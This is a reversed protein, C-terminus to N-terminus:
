GRAYGFKHDEERELLFKEMSKFTSVAGGLYSDKTIRLDLEKSVNLIRNLKNESLAASLPRMEREILVGAAILAAGVTVLKGFLGFHSNRQSVIAVGTGACAAGGTAKLAFRAADNLAYAKNLIDLCDQIKALPALEIDLGDKFAVVTNKLDKAADTVEKKIARLM